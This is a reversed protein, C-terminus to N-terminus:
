SHFSVTRVVGATWGPTIISEKTADQSAVDGRALRMEFEDFVEVRRVIKFGLAEFLAISPANSAGIRVVLRDRPLPLPPRALSIHGESPISPTTAYWLLLHLAETAMGKRRYAPELSSKLASVFHLPHYCMGAVMIEAEVEFDEDTPDGKLFLNVDGVM